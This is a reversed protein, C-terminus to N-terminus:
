SGNNVAFAQNVLADGESDAVVVGKRRAGGSAMGTLVLDVYDVDDVTYEDGEAFAVVVSVNTKYGYPDAFAM